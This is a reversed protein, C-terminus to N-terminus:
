IEDKKEKRTKYRQKERERKCERCINEFRIEDKYKYTPFYEEHLPKPKGCVKCNKFKDILPSLPRKLEEINPMDSPTPDHKDFCRECVLLTGKSTTVALKSGLSCPKGCMQCFPKFDKSNPLEQGKFYAESLPGFKAKVYDDCFQRAEALTNATKIRKPKEKPIDYAGGVFGFPTLDVKCLIAQISAPDVPLEESTVYDSYKFNLVSDDFGAEVCALDRLRAAVVESRSQGVHKANKTGNEKPTLYARWRKRESEWTVGKYISEPSLRALEEERTIPRLNSFRCDLCLSRLRASPPELIEWRDYDEDSKLAEFTDLFEVYKYDRGLHLGHLGLVFDHVFTKEDTSTDSLYAFYYKGSFDQDWILGKTSRILDYVDSDLILYKGTGIHIGRAKM